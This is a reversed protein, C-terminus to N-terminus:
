SGETGALHEVLVRLEEDPIRDGFNAPMTGAVPAFDREYGSATDAAPRLIARRLYEEAFGRARIAAVSPGVPGGEEGIRHCAVCGYRRLLAPASGDDAGGSAGGAGGIAGAPAGGTAAGSENRLEEPTVTVEGGQSQLFAVLAWVQGASLQAGVNPMIPQFGEVVFDQPEVLSAHLYQKCSQGEVRDACRAGVEGLLVPARTGTGHCAECGGAGHYLEEGIEVLEAVSVDSGIEMREPVESEVQPIVNAIGTYVAITVLVTGLIKLNTRWM